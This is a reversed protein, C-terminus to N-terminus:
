EALKIYLTGSILFTYFTYIIYLHLIYIRKKLSLYISQNCHVTKSFESLLIKYAIICCSCIM